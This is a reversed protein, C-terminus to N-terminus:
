NHQPRHSLISTAFRCTARRGTPQREVGGGYWSYGSGTFGRNTGMPCSPLRHLATGLPNEGGVGAAQRARRVQQRHDLVALGVPRDVVIGEGAPHFRGHHLDDVPLYRGPDVHHAIALHALRAEGGIHSVPQGAEAAVVGLRADRRGSANSALWRGWPM